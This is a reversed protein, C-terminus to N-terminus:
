RPGMVKALCEEAWTTTPLILEPDVCEHLRAPYSFELGCADCKNRAPQETTTTDAM